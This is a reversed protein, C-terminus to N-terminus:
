IRKDQKRSPILVMSSEFYAKATNEKGTIWRITSDRKAVGGKDYFAEFGEVM